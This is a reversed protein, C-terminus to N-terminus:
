INVPKIMGRRRKPAAPKETELSLGTQELTLDIRVNGGELSAIAEAKQLADQNSSEIAFSLTKAALHVTTSGKKIKGIISAM